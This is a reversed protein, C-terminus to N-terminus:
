LGSLLDGLPVVTRKGGGGNKAGASLARDHRKMELRAQEKKQLERSRRVAIESLMRAVEGRGSSLVFDLVMLEGENLSATRISALFESIATKPGSLSRKDVGVLVPEAM